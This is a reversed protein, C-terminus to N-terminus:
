KLVSLSRLWIACRTGRPNAGIRISSVADPDVDASLHVRRKEWEGTPSDFPIFLDPRGDGYVLMLYQSKFDNEVKDQESRIEFEIRVAGHLPHAAAGCPALTFVPYMWCDAGADNWSGDFRLADQAADFSISHADASSNTKWLSSDRWALETRVCSALFPKEFLLPMSLRTIPRNDFSGSLALSSEADGSDSPALVCDFAANGMPPVAFPGSPLGSVTAGMAAVSGTKVTDSFNWVEIRARGTDGGLVALTKRRTIEFDDRTPIIRLVISLDHDAPAAGSPSARDLAGGSVAAVAAPPAAAALGSIGTLYAPFRTATLMLAGDACSPALEGPSGCMDFLRLPTAPDAEAFGALRWERAYDPEAYVVGDTATDIPSVSWFVVTQLPHPSSDLRATEYLYARIDSPTELAGLLRANGLFSNQAAMAAFVPKVTGDRRIVGWDKRGGRENYAAFVFFFARDVGEMRLATNAKPLFEAQVLEQGWSHAMVGARVGESDPLGELNTGFETVWIPKDAAGVAALDDRIRRFAEPYKSPPAYTHYNFADFYMAADNALFAAHYPSGYPPLALAGNLVTIGPRGAKFGLAAVKFLAAYDWVPEPAFALDPENWFEWDEMRHGFATASDRCFRFLAPLDGPLRMIPRAWAPCDHFMGSVGIGRERLLEANALYRGFDPPSDHSPQVHRWHLRDRVHRFGALGLLDAITRETDGGNWPCLFAGPRSISSLAADAAFFAGGAECKPNRCSPAVVALTALAHFPAVEPHAAPVIRWYGCPLPPLTANGAEDFAGSLGADRGRWDVIRFAAGPEGGQARVAAGEVAAHGPADLTVAANAATLFAALVIAVPFPRM